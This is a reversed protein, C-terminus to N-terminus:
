AGNRQAKALSLAIRTRGNEVLLPLPELYFSHDIGRGAYVVDYSHACSPCTLIPPDLHAGELSQGCAPCSNEYAYSNGDARCFLVSKGRVGLVCCAGEALSAPSSIEEWQVGERAPATNDGNGHHGLKELPVFGVVKPKEEIVGEVFLASIDPAADYIADEIALKLTVASSPCGHCSGQLRLKVRGADDVGLLEVNGGHSRLYPRTKELAELIRTQLDVPHLGHLLLLGKALEDREFSEIIQAGLEGSQHVIEMMRELGAGHLEMIAQLLEQAATRLGPDSASDVKRVLEEILRARQQFEKKNFM